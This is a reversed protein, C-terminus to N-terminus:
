ALVPAELVNHQMSALLKFYSISSKVFCVLAAGTFGGERAQCFLITDTSKFFPADHERAAPSLVADVWDFFTCV